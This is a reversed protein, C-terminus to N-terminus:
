LTNESSTQLHKPYKTNKLITKKTKPFNSIIFATKKGAKEYVSVLYGGYVAYAHSKEASNGENYTFGIEELAKTLNKTIM